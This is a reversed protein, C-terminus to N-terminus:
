RALSSDRFLIRRRTDKRVSKKRRYCRTCLNLPYGKVYSEYVPIGCCGPMSCWSDRVVYSFEWGHIVDDIIMFSDLNRHFHCPINTSIFYDVGDSNDESHRENRAAM